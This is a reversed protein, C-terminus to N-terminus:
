SIKKEYISNLLPNKLRSSSCKSQTKLMFMKFGSKPDQSQLKLKLMFTADQDLINVKLRTKWDKAETKFKTRPSLEQVQAKPKFRSWQLKLQLKM